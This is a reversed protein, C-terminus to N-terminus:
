AMTLPYKGFFCERQLRVKAAITNRDAPSLNQHSKLAVNILELVIQLLVVSDNDNNDLPGTDQVIGEGSARLLGYSSMSRGEGTIVTRATVTPPSTSEIAQSSQQSITGTSPINGLAANAGNGRGGHSVGNHNLKRRKPTNALNLSGNRLARRNSLTELSASPRISDSKRSNALGIFKSASPPQDMPAPAARELPRFSQQLSYNTGSAGDRRETKFDRTPEFMPLGHLMPPVDQLLNAAHALNNSIKQQTTIPEEDDSL